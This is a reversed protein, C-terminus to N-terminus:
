ARVNVTSTLIPFPSFQAALPGDFFVAAWLAARSIQRWNFGYGQVPCAVKLQENDHCGQCKM